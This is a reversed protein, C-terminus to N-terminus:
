MIWCPLALEDIWDAATCIKELDIKDGYNCLFPEESCVDKQLSLLEECAEPHEECLEKVLPFDMDKLLEKIQITKNPYTYEM